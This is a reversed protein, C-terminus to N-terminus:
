ASPCPPTTYGAPVSHVIPECGALRPAVYIAGMGLRGTDTSEHVIRGTSDVV